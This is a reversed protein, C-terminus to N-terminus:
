LPVSTTIIQKSKWGFATIKVLAIIVLNQSACVCRRPFCLYSVRPLLCSALLVSTINKSTSNTETYETSTVAIGIVGDTERNFYANVEVPAPRDTSM